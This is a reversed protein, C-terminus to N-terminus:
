AVNSANPPDISIENEAIIDESPYLSVKPPPTLHMEVTSTFSLQSSEDVFETMENYFAIPNILCWKAQILGLCAM